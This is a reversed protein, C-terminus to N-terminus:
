HVSFSLSQPTTPIESAKAPLSASSEKTIEPPLLTVVRHRKVELGDSKFYRHTQFSWHLTGVVWDQLGRVYRAVMDDIEPSWSPLEKNAYFTDVSQMCLGGVHDVASQLDHGHYKMLIYIMNHTDGQAQEKNYSFIDNSWTAFNNTAQNLAQIVPHDFVFDPLDIDLTYEILALCPNCGSTHRRIGLFTGLDPVIGQNRARIEMNLAEFCLELAEKFRAQAGPGCDPICRGWFDRALKGPILEVTPQEKGAGNTPMYKDPFWLANMVVDALVDTERTMMGDSINDLYFFYNMVDSVVRLREPPATPYCYAALEGAQLGRLARRQKANFDPCNADLWEVSQKAIEDGNANYSLPFTCHSVLDPIIFSKSQKTTDAQFSSPSHM